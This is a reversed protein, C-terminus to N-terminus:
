AGAAAEGRLAQRQHLEEEERGKGSSDRRDDGSANGLAGFEPRLDCGSRQDDAQDVGEGLADDPVRVVADLGPKLGGEPGAEM